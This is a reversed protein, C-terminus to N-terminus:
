EHFISLLCSMFFSFWTQVVFVGSKLLSLLKFMDYYNVRDEKTMVSVKEEPTKARTIISDAADIGQGKSISSSDHVKSKGYPKNEKGDSAISRSIQSSTEACHGLTLMLAQLAQLELLFTLKEAPYINM